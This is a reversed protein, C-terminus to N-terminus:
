PRVELFGELVIGNAINAFLNLDVKNRSFIYLNVPVEKRYGFQKFVGLQVIKVDENNLVEVAIDIDSKENDDGKRYSGFLIIARSNPIMEHIQGLIPSEYITNLNYCIKRSRNYIHDKNCYIRWTRGLIEKKLFGEEILQAVIRGATTKAIKLERSLDTLSVEKTPFSFFWNVIKLYVESFEQLNFKDLKKTM